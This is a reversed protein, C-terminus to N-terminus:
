IGFVLDLVLEAIQGRVELVRSVENAVATDQGGSPDVQTFHKQLLRSVAEVFYIIYYTYIGYLGKSDIQRGFCRRTLTDSHSVTDARVGGM